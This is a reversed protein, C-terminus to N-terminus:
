FPNLRPTHIECHIDIVIYMENHLYETKFNLVYIYVVLNTCYICSVVFVLFTSIFVDSVQVPISSVIMAMFYTTLKYWNNFHEKVLIARELPVSICFVSVKVCISNLDVFLVFTCYNSEWPEVKVTNLVNM